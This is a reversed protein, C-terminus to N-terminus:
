RELIELIVGDPDSFMAIRWYRRKIPKAARRLKDATTNAVYEIKPEVEVPPVILKGGLKTIREIAEDLDDVRFGIHKLGVSSRMDKQWAEPTEPNKVKTPNDSQMLELLDNGLYLYANTSTKRLVSFGFVKTYFDISKELDSVTVGIHEVIVKTGELSNTAYNRAHFNTLRV